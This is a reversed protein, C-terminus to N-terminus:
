APSLGPYHGAKEAPLGCRDHRRGPGYGDGCAAGDPCGAGCRLNHGGDLIVDPDRRALEMGTWIAQATEQRTMAPERALNRTGPRIKRNVIEPCHYEDAIGVDVVQVQDGFHHAMASM